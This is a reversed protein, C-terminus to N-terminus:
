ALIYWDDFRSQKEMIRQYGRSTLLDYIKQRNNTYNHECTIVKFRYNEFDHCQLIEFESGETDISLYDIEAPAGNRQLMETLTVTQVAYRKSRRRRTHHGDQESLSAVTSLAAAGVEAFEIEEGTVKWVCDTEIAASRNSRLQTHWVRAPEALIGSWDFSKELLWSNSLEYGDTAGFEVFFGNRKFGLQALVFIDQRLQSKSRDIISVANSVVEPPLAKLFEIDYHDKEFSKLKDFRTYSTLRINLKRLLERAADEVDRLM